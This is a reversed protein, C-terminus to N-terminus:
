PAGYAETRVLDRLMRAIRYRHPGKLDAALKSFEASEAEMPDRGLLLKWYDNVRSRAFPDSAAAKEAWEM